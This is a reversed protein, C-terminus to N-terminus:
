FDSFMLFYRVVHIKREKMSLQNMQETHTPAVTRNQLCRIFLALGGNLTFDSENFIDMGSTRNWGASQGIAPIKSALSYPLRKCPLM